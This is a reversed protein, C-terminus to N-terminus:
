KKVKNKERYEKRAATEKNTKEQHCLFCLNQWGEVECLLRDAFEDLTTYGEPGAVPIIHDMKCDKQPSILGCHNCYWGYKPRGTSFEGIQVKFRKQAEARTRWRFSARRLTSVCFNFKAKDM